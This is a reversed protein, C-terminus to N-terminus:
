PADINLEFTTLPLDGAVVNTRPFPQWAYRVREPKAVADIRVVIEAGCLEAEAAHWVGDPGSLEFAAAPKGDITAFGAAADRCRVRAVADRREASVPLPPLAGPGGHHKALVWAAARRGVERKRRPHVDRPDSLDHTVVLGCHPLSEAARRQQDRFAPWEGSAYGKAEIGGLQCILFVLDPRSWARRWDAVMSAFLPEHQRVRWAPDRAGPGEAHSLANSEGQQWLVGRCAMPALRAPGAAWLFGPQFPHAARPNEARRGLHLRARTLCWPELVDDNNLWEARCMPALEPSAALAELRTWAEAPSGGVACQVIGVPVGLAERLRRGFHWGVASFGTASEASSETWTPPDFFGEPTLRAIVAEGWPGAPTEEGAHGLRCLRLRPLAAHAADSKWEAERRCPFAMNSQGAALWVEGVLVDTLVQTERGDASVRVTLPASTAQLAPLDLRWAGSGDARAEAKAGGVEVRVLAGSSANGWVPLPMDRQLVMGSAFIPALVAGTLASM